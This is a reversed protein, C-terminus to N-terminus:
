IFINNDLLLNIRSFGGTLVYYSHATVSKSHLSISLTIDETLTCQLLM